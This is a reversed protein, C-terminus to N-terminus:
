PSMSKLTAPEVSPIVARCISMLIWPRGRATRSCASSCARFPRSWMRSFIAAARSFGRGLMEGYAGRMKVICIGLSRMRSTMPEPPFVIRDIMSSVPQLISTSSEPRTDIAEESSAAASRAIWIM